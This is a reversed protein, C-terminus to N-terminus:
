SPGRHDELRTCAKGEQPEHASSLVPSLHKSCSLILLHTEYLLTSNLFYDGLVRIGPVRLVHFAKGIEENFFRHPFRKPRAFRKRVDMQLRPCRNALPRCLPVLSRERADTGAMVLRAHQEFHQCGIARSCTGHEEEGVLLRGISDRAQYQRSDVLVLPAFHRLPPPEDVPRQSPLM